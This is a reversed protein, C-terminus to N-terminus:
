TPVDELILTPDEILCRNNQKEWYRNGKRDNVASQKNPSPDNWVGSTKSTVEIGKAGLHVFSRPKTSLIDWGDVVAM